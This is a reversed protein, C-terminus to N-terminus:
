NGRVTTTHRKIFGLFSESSRTISSVSTIGGNAQARELSSDGTEWMWFWTTSSAEGVRTPYPYNVTDPLDTNCVPQKWLCSTCVFLPLLLLLRKM